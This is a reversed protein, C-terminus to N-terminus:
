AKGNHESNERTKSKQLLMWHWLYDICDDSLFSKKEKKREKTEKNKDQHESKLYELLRVQITTTELDNFVHNYQKGTTASLIDHGWETFSGQSWM